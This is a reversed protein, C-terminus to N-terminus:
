LNIGVSTCLYWKMGTFGQTGIYGIGERIIFNGGIGVLYGPNFGLSLLGGAGTTTQKDINVSTMLLASVDWIPVAKGSIMKFTTRSVGIGAGNLLKGPTSAGIEYSLANVSATLSFLSATSDGKLSISKLNAAYKVPAAKISSRVRDPLPSFITQAQLAIAAFLFTLGIIIRKM